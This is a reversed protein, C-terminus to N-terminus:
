VKPLTMILTFAAETKACLLTDENQKEWVTLPFPQACCIARDKIVM